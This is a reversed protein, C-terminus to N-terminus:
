TSRVVGRRTKGPPDGVGTATPTPRNRGDGIIAATLVGARTM